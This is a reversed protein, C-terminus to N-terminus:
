DLLQRVVRRGGSMRAHDLINAYVARDEPPGGTIPPLPVAANKWTDAAGVIVLLQQARSLGVNIRQYERVFEGMRGRTSRVLSAIIIPKEMGQFRDVTNTRLDMGVFAEPCARRADDLTERIAKLQAGYFTLIGVERRAQVLVTEGLRALREPKQGRGDVRVRREEFLEDLTEAPTTPLWERLVAGLPRGDHARGIELEQIGTYGRAALARGIWVASQVVLNVELQNAKGSGVQEEFVPQGRQDKSSDVWLLHQQPELFLGGQRDTIRLHHPRREALTARDPGPLLRGDYFQNVVDMIHPHMRYQTWLTAKIAEDAREYLEEFLSATVMRKYANFEEETIQGEQRAEGFTADSERFMPPLQRHDGVLVVKRGLLMPLILEPPTAKSVEDVIVIDFPQFEKDQWTKRKGAENCTMGVVNAQRVYLIQLQERDSETIKGLRQLWEGQVGKWRKSRGRRAGDATDAEQVLREARAVEEPALAPTEEGSLDHWAAAWGSEVSAVRESAASLSERAAEVQQRAQELAEQAGNLGARARTVALEATALASSVVPAIAGRARLAEEGDALRATVDARAREIAALVSADPRLSDIVVAIDPPVSAGFAALAARSLAGTAKSWGAKELARLRGNVEGLRRLDADDESDALRAKERRLHALEETAEDRVGPEALTALAAALVRLSPTASIGADLRRVEATDLDAALLSLDRPLDAEGTLWSQIEIWLGRRARAETLAEDARDAESRRRAHAALAVDHAARGDEVTRAAVGHQRAQLRIADLASARRAAETALQDAAEMRQRCQESIGAFWRSVVNEALFDKFEDDVKSPDGLRLRRVAPTDALRALANDVALNTQSAVLVRQGALASRLCIDAIVTTKGTGPPGQILCLDPASMAKVVADRQGPNLERGGRATPTLDALAVPVSASTSSFVFDALRPCFGQSNKLRDIGQRQHNLPALDGAIASMLQGRTPLERKQLAKTDDEDLRIRVRVHHDTAEAAKGWGKLDGEHRPNIPHVGDIDGLKTLEPDRERRRRPEGDAGDEPDPPPPAAGVELGKLRREKPISEAHVLFAITDEGEWRWAVYPVNIQNRRVLQEKWDLYKRWSQLRKNTEARHLPLGGLRQFDEVSIFQEADNWYICGSVLAEFDRRLVHPTVEWRNVVLKGQKRIASLGLTFGGRGFTEALPGECVPRFLLSRFHDPVPTPSDEVNSVLLTGPLGQPLITELYLALAENVPIEQGVFDLLFDRIPGPREALEPIEFSLSDLHIDDPPGSRAAPAAAKGPQFPPRARMRAMLDNESM